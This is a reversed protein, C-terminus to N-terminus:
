AGAATGAATRRDAHRASLALAASSRGREDPRRASSRWCRSAARRRRGRDASRAARRPRRLPHQQSLPLHQRRRLGGLRRQPEAPRAGMRAARAIAADYRAAPVWGGRATWRWSWWPPTTSIPIIRTPTSSPGAAPRLTRASARGTARSTSCRCRCCGTSGAAPPPSRRRRRRGRAARPLRARHGVGALRLAPLLGRRGQGGAAQEVSDRAIAAATDAPDGLVDYMMVSNAMAPFIAGLGDEGNLRETSSPSRAHRDRAARLAEPILPVGPRLVRRHRPFLSFWLWSRIRRRARRVSQQPRSSSCNTSAHRRAPEERAAQAGAAGLAAGARHAGLVVDEDPPVSVLAAAAHDRGADGARQALCHHRLAGAPRAHLRQSNVAGGRALIAERARAMHPADPEDGIMKLAFYAKVSASIDFDGDHFLPWGGHAGQIRRLYVAIKRELEADVPEGRYHRLLVYEAPITADAELEFVWHGDAQQRALLARTAAAAARAPTTPQTAAATRDLRADHPRECVNCRHTRRRSQGLPHRRRHTAPLGTATWDGALFLNGWQTRAGPRRANQEPTAAFTARRERVIQWPPLTARCAPSRPSRAGSRRRRARRAAHRVAARRRQHHGLPPRSARLDMRLHRQRRRADAAHRRASRHPFARQRHRPVRDADTLGPVMPRRSTPRCRWSSPTAAPLRCPTARRFRAARRARGDFRLAM